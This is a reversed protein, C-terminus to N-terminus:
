LAKFLSEGRRSLYLAIVVTAAIPILTTGAIFILAFKGLALTGVVVLVPLAASGFMSVMSAASQKVVQAENQWELKPLKLNVLLGLAASFLAYALPVLFTLVLRLGRIKLAVSLLVSCILSTPVTLTLNVLLKALFIYKAPV